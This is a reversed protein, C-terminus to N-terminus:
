RLAGHVRLVCSPVQLCCFELSLALIQIPCFASLMVSMIGVSAAGLNVMQLDPITGDQEQLRM